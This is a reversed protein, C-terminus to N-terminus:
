SATDAGVSPAPGNELNAQSDQNQAESPKALLKRIRRYISTFVPLLVWSFYITSTNHQFYPIFFLFLSLCLYIPIPLLSLSRAIILDRREDSDVLRRNWAAYLWLIQSSFGCGTMTLTFFIVGEPFKGYTTGVNFGIPFFVIFALFLFTLRIFTNDIHKIYQMMRRHGNWYSAIIFFTILYFMIQPLMNRINDHIEITAQNVDHLALASFPPVKIDLVLLTIAIAFIGDCLIVLRDESPPKEEQDQLKLLKDIRPMSVRWIFYGALVTGIIVYFSSLTAKKLSEANGVYTGFAGSACFATCQM